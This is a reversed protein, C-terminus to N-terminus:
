SYLVTGHDYKKSNMKLCFRCVRNEPSVSNFVRDCRLCTRKVKVIPNAEKQLWYDKYGTYKKKNSSQIEPM